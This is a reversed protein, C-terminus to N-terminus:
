YDNKKKQFPLDTRKALEISMNLLAHNLEVIKSKLNEIIASRLTTRRNTSHFCFKFATLASDIRPGCAYLWKTNVNLFIDYLM